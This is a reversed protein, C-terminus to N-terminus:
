AAEGEIVGLYAARVRPDGLVSATAGFAILRGFDLVITSQCVASILEVDHDVLLVKAGRFGPIAVILDRLREAERDALGAGPEDMMVLKPQGVLGRAIELLRRECANLDAGMRRRDALGVFDLLAAIESQRDRSNLRLRDAAAAVNDWVSSTEVTQETQFTRRVGAAARRHAALNLLSDGDLTIAGSVPRVFGSFVNLLTTKGAGNPGILGTVPAEIDVSLDNLGKVGGFQVTVNSIRIM